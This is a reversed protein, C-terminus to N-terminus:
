HPFISHLSHHSQHQLHPHHVLLTEQFELSSELLREQCAQHPFSLLLNPSLGRQPLEQQHHVQEQLPLVLQHVKQQLPEQPPLLEQQPPLRQQIFSNTASTMVIKYHNKM